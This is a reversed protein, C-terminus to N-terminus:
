REAKVKNNEEHITAKEEETMKKSPKSPVPLNSTDFRLQCDSDKNEENFHEGHKEKMLEIGGNARIQAGGECTLDLTLINDKHSLNLIVGDSECMTSKFVGGNAIIKEVKNKVNLNSPSSYAYPIM